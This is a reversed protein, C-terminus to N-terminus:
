SPFQRRIRTLVMLSRLSCAPWISISTHAISTLAVQALRRIPMPNRALWRSLRTVARLGSLTTLGPTSHTLGAQVWTTPVMGLVLGTSTHILMLFFAPLGFDNARTDGSDYVFQGALTSTIASVANDFAGPANAVQDKTAYSTQPDIEKICSTAGTMLAGAAIISLIKNKM